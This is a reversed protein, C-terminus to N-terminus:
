ENNMLESIMIWKENEFFCSIYHRSSGFCSFIIHLSLSNWKSMLLFCPLSDLASGPTEVSVETSQVAARTYMTCLWSVCPCGTCCIVLATFIYVQFQVVIPRITEQAITNPYPVIHQWGSVWLICWSWKFLKCKIFDFYYINM